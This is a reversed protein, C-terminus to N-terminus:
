DWTDSTEFTAWGESSSAALRLFAFTRGALDGSGTFTNGSVLAAPTHMFHWLGPLHGRVGSPEMVSVRSLHMKGDIPSPYPASGYGLNPTGFVSIGGGITNIMKAAAQATGVQSYNRAIYHGGTTFTGPPVNGTAFPATGTTTENAIIITNFADAGMHSTFDGFIFTQWNGATLSGPTVCDNSFYFLKGNSYFRWPHPGGNVVKYHFLGSANQATSPFLGTGTDVDTMIEYGRIRAGGVGDGNTDDVRLYFGNTGAPQKYAAKNTGTYAKTWGCATVLCYDLIAILAGASATLSPASPSAESLYVIM